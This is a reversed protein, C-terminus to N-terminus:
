FLIEELSKRKKEGAEDLPYGLPILAVPSCGEPISVAERLLEEKFNCVWCTGLGQETAALCLHEIAISADIDAHDKGDARRHWSEEHNACAIVVCPATQFWERAYCKQLAALTPADTVVKFRWPQFNVASPALRVCELLYAIKEAEIPRADYNRASYRAQILELLNM